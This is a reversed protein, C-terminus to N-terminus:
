VLSRDRSQRGDPERARIHLNKQLAPIDSPRSGRAAAGRAAAPRGTRVICQEVRRGWGATPCPRPADSRTRIPTKILAVSELFRRVRRATPVQFPAYDDVTGIGVGLIVRGGSLHDLTAVQHAVHVPHYIPLVLVSVGLRITTTVAAAYTLTTLCDLSEAEDLTNNAVV